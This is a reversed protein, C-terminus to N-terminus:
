IHMPACWNLLGEHIPASNNTIEMPQHWGHTHTLLTERHEVVIHDITEM